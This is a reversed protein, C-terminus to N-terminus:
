QPNLKVMVKDGIRYHVPRQKWDVLKKMKRSSKDLYSMAKDVQEEYSKATHFADSNKLEASVPLSQPTNPQQGM